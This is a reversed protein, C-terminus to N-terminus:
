NKYNARVYVSMQNVGKFVATVQDVANLPDDMPMAMATLADKGLSKVVGPYAGITNKTTASVHSDLVRLGASVNKAAVVAQKYALEHLSAKSPDLLIECEAVLAKARNDSLGICQRVFEECALRVTEDRCWRSFDAALHIAEMVGKVAVVGVALPGALEAGFVFPAADTLLDVGADTVADWDRDAIATVLKIYDALIVVAGAFRAVKEARKAMGEFKEGLQAMKSVLATNGKALAIKSVAATYSKGMHAALGILTGAAGTVKGVLETATGAIGHKRAYAVKDELSGPLNVLDVIDPLKGTDWKAVNGAGELVLKKTEDYLQKSDVLVKEARQMKPRVQEIDPAALTTNAIKERKAAYYAAPIFVHDNMAKLRAYPIDSYDKPLGLRTGKAVEARIQASTPEWLELATDPTSRMMVAATRANLLLEHHRPLVNAPNSPAVNIPLAGLKPWDGFTDELGNILATYNNVNEAKKSKGAHPTVKTPATKRQLLHVVAANGARRQLDLLHDTTNGAPEVKTAAGGCRQSPASRSRLEPSPRVYRPYSDDM